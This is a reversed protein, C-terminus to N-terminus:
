SNVFTVTKQLAVLEDDLCSLTLVEAKHYDVVAGKKGYVDIKQLQLTTKDEGILYGNNQEFITQIRCLIVKAQLQKCLSDVINFSNLQLPLLQTVQESRRNEIELLYPEAVELQKIAATEMVILGETRGSPAVLEIGIRRPNVAVVVGIMFADHHYLGIVRQENACTSLKAYM